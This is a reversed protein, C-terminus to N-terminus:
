NGCTEHGMPTMAASRTERSDPKIFAYNHLLPRLRLADHGPKDRDDV